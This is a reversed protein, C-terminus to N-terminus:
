AGAKLMRAAEPAFYTLIGDCGARKFCILSELVGRERDMWGNLMAQALMAYEGSVQYAYTPMRFAERVRWIIDLYPLGPKIMVMDAGELIDLEVERLAENGNAPDMQYTRKDGILTKSTSIADRFPGYFASAFKASYALIQVDGYDHRDLVQRIAGIRGDMMDSPAIVDAGAEALMLAEACQLKVSPDNVITEGDMLGDHGHSTFPDLATDTILGINDGFASKLARLARGTLNDPNLAERADETRLVVPTNQFIHIAPIGLKAADEVAGVLRDLSYRTVGPMSPIPELVDTGGTVFVPWILDTVSLATERVLARSWATRRNRRMRRGAVIDDISVLDPM